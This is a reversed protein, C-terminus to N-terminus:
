ARAKSQFKRKRRRRRRLLFNILFIVAVVIIVLVVILMALPIVYFRESTITLVHTKGGAEAYEVIAQARIWGVSPLQNWAVRYAKSVEPLILQQVQNPPVELRTTPNSSGREFINITIRQPLVHVNGTNKLALDFNIPSKLNFHPVGIHGIGKLETKVDGGVTVIAQADVNGSINLQSQGPPPTKDSSTAFSITAYHGGSEATSPVVVHLKVQQQVNPGLKFSIPSATIWTSADFTTQYAPPLKGVSTALSSISTNM